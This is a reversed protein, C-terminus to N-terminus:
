GIGVATDSIVMSRGTRGLRYLKKVESPELVVNYLKFNSLYGVMQHIGTTATYDLAGLTVRSSGLSLTGNASSGSVVSSVQEVGNIYCRCGGITSNGNYTVVLHYWQNPGIASSGTNPDTFSVVNGSFDVLVM